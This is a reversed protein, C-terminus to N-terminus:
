RIKGGFGEMYYILPSNGLTCERARQGSASM